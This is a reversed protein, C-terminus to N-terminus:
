IIESTFGEKKRRLTAYDSLSAKWASGYSDLLQEEISRAREIARRVHRKDICDSNEVIAVDGAMKIIGSLDRLRLTLGDKRDMQRARVQAEKIIQECANPTAHPIRGDKSIEQATFQVLKHRNEDNDEMVTNLLVEYGAGIIRSRLPPLISSVDNINIAGVLVFDCPVNDVRVVAGTSTTNRGLIPFKKDQMATLLYRQLEGLTSLEDIFLIGEHAEHIAGPIVREHPPVGIEPHGGYPDHRVDGLLEAESAGTAQVFTKRNIPVLIKRQHEFSDLLKSKYVKVKNGRREYIYEQENGKSDRRKMFVKDDRTISPMDSFMDEIHKAKRYKEAGCYLCINSEPDSITGCKRCRFGLRESVYYPVDRPDVLKARKMERREKEIQEKTKIELIPRDPNDDNSLVAIQQTPHPILSAIAGAIFSKGTGPPGVLLLHRKQRAVIHAIELVHEQGIVQDLMNKPIKIEATTGFNLYDMIPNSYKVNLFSELM